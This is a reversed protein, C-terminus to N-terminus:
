RICLPCLDALVGTLEIAFSGDSVHAGKFLQAAFLGNFGM